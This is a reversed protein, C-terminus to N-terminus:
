LITGSEDLNMTPTYVSSGDGLGHVLEPLEINKSNDEILKTLLDKTESLYKADVAPAAGLGTFFDKKLTGKILAVGGSVTIGYGVNKVFAAGTGSKKGAIVSTTMGVALLAIPKILSKAQFGTATADPTIADVKDLMRGALAGGAYGLLIGLPNLADKAVTGAAKVVGLGSLGGKRHKRHGKHHKKGKHTKTKHKM